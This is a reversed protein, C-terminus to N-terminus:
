ASVVATAADEKYLWAGALTAIIHWILLLFSLELELRMSFIGLFGLLLHPLLGYLFWVALAAYIATRPGPGFRPRIAAYLWISVLGLMFGLSLFFVANGPTPEMVKGLAQMEQAFRPGVVFHNVGAELVDIILGALLGGALVRRWNIKAPNTM